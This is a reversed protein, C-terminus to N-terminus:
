SKNSLQKSQKCYPYNTCGLFNGHRGKRRVLYGGCECREAKTIVDLNKVTYDCGPFNNCGVFSSGKHERKVLKGTLCRPCEPASLVSSDSAKNVHINHHKVLEKVFTSPKNADALIFTYNKTRTLAVYFLRREESFPHKERETLVYKLVSDDVMKNPFGLRKNDGNIIVVNTAEIGKSSHASMFSITLKPYPHCVITATKNHGMKNFAYHDDLMNLDFNNRGLLLIDTDDGFDSVITSIITLLTDAKSVEYEYVSVPKDLLKDSRLNKVIQAPNKMVFNGAIDILAQSNRYTKEIKTMSSNGFFSEFMAILTVDSGAFRYISQWDDGVCLIHADCQDKIAKVLKFRSVSIDQYEDVIIYKYHKRVLNDEICATADIIMDNFDIANAEQLKENYEKVIPKVLNLFLANREKVFQKKERQAQLLYNDIANTDNGNSKFLSIFSAVLKKFQDLYRKETLDYISRFIEENDVKKYEVGEAKLLRDLNILLKGAQRFHSYTSILKTDNSKHFAIKWEMDDLYKREEIESLHPCRNKDDIGFHELYIDYDTLYFDPRYMKKYKDDSKFPYEREYEYNVGNLYLYNAVMLEEHSKVKEKAFTIKESELSSAGKRIGEELNAKGKLTELDLQFRAEHYDELNDFDEIEKPVQIYYAFFTIFTDLLKKDTMLTNSFFEDIVQDLINIIEPRSGRAESIINLGLKHFTSVNTKINLKDNIREQMEQAAKKTYTILLIDDPKCYGSEVLYKVKASITLTKGSGAGAVVLNSEEDIVVARRQQEDLSKGDIDDFLERFRVKEYAMFADNFENLRGYAGNYNLMFLRCTEDNRLVVMHRKVRNHLDSYESQLDDLLRKIIYRKASSFLGNLQTHYENILTLDDSFEKSKRYKKGKMVKYTYFLVAITIITIISPIM